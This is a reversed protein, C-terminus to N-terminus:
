PRSNCVTSGVVPDIQQILLQEGEVKLHFRADAFYEPPVADWLDLYNWGASQAQDALHARYQDFAWRPYVVNYRVPSREETALFIPENVILVPTSGAIEHGTALAQFLLMDKLEQPPEMGRYRADNSVGFDPPAGPTLRNTDERTATWIIGLMELKIQRALDSRQGMLTKEFFTSEGEFREGQQFGIDYMDLLKASREWNALLFPNVRQSILTNLTVFWVILDPDYEMAKDLIVLDKLVSPHPYGLDYARITKDGCRSSLQNWQESIVEYAGLDEGWLSSDGIMVIRYEDPSKPAAIAHSLFTIDVNEIAVSYPDGGVGFPLRTRGPFIVNYGSVQAGPPNFWGYLINIIVFLGLAKVVVRLPHVESKM